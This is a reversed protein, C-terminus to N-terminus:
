DIRLQGLSHRIHHLHHTRLGDVTVASFVRHVRADRLEQLLRRWAGLGHDNAM